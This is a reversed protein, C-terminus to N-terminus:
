EASTRRRAYGAGLVGLLGTAMLTVTMPEPVTSTASVEVIGRFANDGIDNWLGDSRFHVFDENNVNNPEGPGWLAEGPLLAAGDDWIWVGESVQDTLGIFLNSSGGFSTFLFSNEAASNVHVLFGGLTRSEARANAYGTATTLTYCSTGFSLYGVACQAQASSGIALSAVVALPIFRWTRSRM